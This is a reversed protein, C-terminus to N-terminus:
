MVAPRLFEVIESPDILQQIIFEGMPYQACAKSFASEFSDYVGQLEEGYFVGYKDRLLKNELYENLHDSFFAYNKQQVESLM